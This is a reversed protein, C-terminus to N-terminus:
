DQDNSEGKSFTNPKSDSLMAVLLNTLGAWDNFQHSEGDVVRQVRGGRVVKKSDGASDPEPAAMEEETWVRVLFLETRKRHRSSGM